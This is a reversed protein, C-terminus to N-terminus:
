MYVFRRLVATVDTPMLSHALKTTFTRCHFFFFFFGGRYERKEEPSGWCVANAM